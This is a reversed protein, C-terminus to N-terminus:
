LTPRTAERCHEVLDLLKPLAVAASKKGMSIELGTLRCGSPRNEAGVWEASTLRENRLTLLNRRYHREIPLRGPTAENSRCRHRRAIAPIAFFCIAVCSEIDSFDDLASNFVNKGFEACVVSRM